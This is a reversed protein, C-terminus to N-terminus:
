QALERAEARAQHAEERRGAEALDVSLNNLSVALDPLYAAPNAQALQRYAEVAEEIAALGEGRRGAEALLISLNNLSGALEPLYAAPNAQALRRRVEVAEEIAALGEERRGAEALRISLTNLSSALDPLYAAPNAQALQRYAEVAEESAALGEGRRGAEALRISLNNLSGALDPLYAAPNAQVLRRYAEVAEEIAALGEERRGVEGLRNSLNNLSAALDPLYAAPNAQVLRRYAEVAEEIAALGEERRGLEALDVSLNNLSAALDPLYAAPNAQALRRRVEVAEEIAALGEERRGAEALDGSLNNLSMALNPLYAAPNAQALRRRIEVAEEIAALGEERRGLEALDVSLNNLSAALDPLYAAPNAQVLQRYVEVAEEIAALGEERRGAEGLRGSLNNLSGALNPMYAAPNAQALRRYIEVAEEIAALGEGRGAEALRNSLTNLSSALEPLYAAPNAQALRRYAEVAEEIAALGEERRGAGGLRNSLNNLSGALYPLYAAPNAQVLRRYIEVAEEIAALGEERRGAEALRNSLNNLSGALDSLYAAPNNDALERARDVLQQDIAIQLPILVLSTFLMQQAASRLSAVDPRLQTLALALSGALSPAFLAEVTTTQAQGRAAEILGALRQELIDGWGAALEPYNGIARALLDVPQRLASPDRGDLAAAIVERQDGIATAVLHEGILDPEVPNWYGTGPYAAHMWGALEHRREGTADGLLVLRSLLGAAEAESGAGALTAFGAVTELLRDSAQLGLRDATRRWHAAEVEVLRDLLERRETPLVREDVCALGAAAAITLPRDFVESDLEGPVGPVEVDLQEAIAAAAAVFLDRKVAPQSWQPLSLEWLVARDLLVDLATSRGRLMPRVDHSGAVQARTLLVVKVPAEETATGALRSVVNAAADAKAESYDVVVLRPVSTEALTEIEGPQADPRLFGALWSRGDRETLRRCVEGALRTKGSGGPGAVVTAALAGDASAWGELRDLWGGVDVFPVVGLDAKLLTALSVPGLGAPLGWWGPRLGVSRPRGEGLTVTIQADSVHSIVVNGDGAVWQRAGGGGVM